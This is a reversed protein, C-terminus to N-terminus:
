PAVLRPGGVRMIRFDARRNMQHCADTMPDQLCLPYEEGYGVIPLRDASLGRNIFWQQTEAARRQSLSINYEDQGRDDAHGEIRLVLRPNAQLWRLKTELVPVADPRIAVQDYDFFISRSLPITDVGALAADRDEEVDMMPPPEVPQPPTVPGADIPTVPRQGADTSGAMGRAGFLVGIGVRAGINVAAPVYDAVIDGRVVVPGGVHFRAGAIGSVGWKDSSTRPDGGTFEVRTAGLGLLMSTRPGFDAVTFNYNARVSLARFDVSHGSESKPDAGVADVELSWVPTFFFGLRAGFGTVGRSDLGEPTGGYTFQAKSGLYTPQLFLGFELTGAAAGPVGPVMETNNRGLAQAAADSAPTSQASASQAFFALAALTPVIRSKM